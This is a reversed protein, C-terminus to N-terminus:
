FPELIFVEGAQMAIKIYFDQQKVMNKNLQSSCDVIARYFWLHEHSFM